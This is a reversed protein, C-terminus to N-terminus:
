DMMGTTYADFITIQEFQDSLKEVTAGEPDNVARDLDVVFGASKDTLKRRSGDNNQLEEILQVADQHPIAKKALAMALLSQAIGKSVLFGTFLHAYGRICTVFYFRSDVNGPDNLVANAVHLLATHWYISHSPKHTAFYILMLRKLQRISAAFLAHPTPAASSWNRFDHQKENAIYPRFMEM